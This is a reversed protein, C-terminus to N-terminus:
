NEILLQPTTQFSELISSIMQDHGMENANLRISGLSTVACWFPPSSSFLYIFINYQQAEPM